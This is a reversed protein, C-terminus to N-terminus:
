KGQCCACGAGMNSKLLQAELVVSNKSAIVEGPMLGAIIETTAGEKVGPRVSRVHFIKPANPQMFNKDRVFVVNCTGDWHIAESPIVVAKPEERLVIRGTGFTNARLRGDKNALEVRVKVARTVDDADTSIWSVTGKSAPEHATNGAQFLASQGLSVYQADEQRVNLTLWLRSTDAVDFLSQKTDVVEGEVVKREIVVGDLSSRLPVLNSTTGRAGLESVVDAPLGLFQIRRALQDAPLNALEDSEVPLGLNVLAQQARNMQIQAAEAETQVELFERAPIANGALPRLRDVNDKKLRVQAVAQLLESKLRGVEAADVLALVDGKAVRDGVQKEVRWVTGPVRSSFHAMRTQDYGLEGNASITDVVPREAVIAIDVGVKEVAEVSAFQIRKMHLSCRSNNEQRPRLAIARNAQQLMAPTVMPPKKLQVIDPHELPCQMVGHASCWGYDTGAPLLSKNCEVCQSEPVNHEECWDMVEMDKGGFLESFKPITWDNEHGWVALAIIGVVVLTTPVVQGVWHWFGGGSAHEVEPTEDAPDPTPM